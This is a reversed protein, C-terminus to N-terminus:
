AAALVIGQSALIQAVNAQRAAPDGGPWDADDFLDAPVVWMVLVPVRRRLEAAAPQVAADEALASCISRSDALLAPLGLPLDRVLVAISVPLRIPVPAGGAAPPSFGIRFRGLDATGRAALLADVDSAGGAALMADLETEGIAGASVAGARLRAILRRRREAELAAGEPLGGLDAIIERDIDLTAFGGAVEVIRDQQPVRRAVLAGRWLLDVFLSKGLRLNTAKLRLEGPVAGPATAYSGELLVPRLIELGLDAQAVDLAFPGELAASTTDFATNLARQLAPQDLLADRGASSALQLIIRDVFGM